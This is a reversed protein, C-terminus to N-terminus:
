ESTSSARHMSIFDQLDEALYRVAANTGNGLKLFKPGGGEWRKRRLWHVSLGIIEAAEKEKLPKNQIM